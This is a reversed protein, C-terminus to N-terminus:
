DIEETDETTEGEDKITSNLDHWLKILKISDLHQQELYKIGFLSKAVKFPIWLNNMNMVTFCRLYCNDAIKKYHIFVKVNLLGDRYDTNIRTREAIMCWDWMQGEFGPVDMEMISPDWHPNQDNYMSHEIQLTMSFFPFGLLRLKIDARWTRDNPRNWPTGDRRNQGESWFPFSQFMGDEEFYQELINRLMVDGYKAWTDASTIPPPGVLMLLRNMQVVCEQHLQPNVTTAGTELTEDKSNNKM